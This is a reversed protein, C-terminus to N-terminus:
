ALFVNLTGNVNVAHRTLPDEVSRPVSGLAAQHFIADMGACARKVTDLDRIDGEVLEFDKGPNFRGNGLGVLNARKGTSFDDLVRVEMGLALLEEVLHSGIFGAGGTVLVKSRSMPTRPEQRQLDVARSTNDPGSEAQNM